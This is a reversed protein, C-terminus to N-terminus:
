YKQLTKIQTGRLLRPIWQRGQKPPILNAEARCDNMFNSDYSSAKSTLKLTLSLIIRRLSPSTQETFDPPTAEKQLQILQDHSLSSISVSAYKDAIMVNSKKPTNAAESSEMDDYFIRKRTLNSKQPTSQWVCEAINFGSSTHSLSPSKEASDFSFSKSYSALFRSPLSLPASGSEEEDCSSSKISEVCADDGTGYATQESRDNGDKRESKSERFVDGYKGRVDSVCNGHAMIDEEKTVARVFSGINFQHEEDLSSSSSFHDKNDRTAHKEADNQNDVNETEHRNGQILRARNEEIANSPHILLSVGVQNDLFYDGAAVRPSECNIMALRFQVLPELSSSVYDAGDGGRQVSHWLLSVIDGDHLEMLQPDKKSTDDLSTVCVGGGSSFIRILRVTDRGLIALQVSRRRDDDDNGREPYSFCWFEKRPIFKALSQISLCIACLRQRGDDGDKSAGGNKRRRRGRSSCTPCVKSFPRLLEERGFKGPLKLPKPLPTQHGGKGGIDSWERSADGAGFPSIPVLYHAWTMTDCGNMGWTARSDFDHAGLRV